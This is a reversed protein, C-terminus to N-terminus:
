PRPTDLLEQMKRREWDAGWSGGALVVAAHIAIGVGWGLLPWYFWLTHPATVLNIVLLATNVILYVALHAYFAKLARVRRRAREYRAQDDM